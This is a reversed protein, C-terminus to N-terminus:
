MIPPIEFIILDADLLRITSIKRLLQKISVDFVKLAEALAGPEDKVFFQLTRTTPPVYHEIILM